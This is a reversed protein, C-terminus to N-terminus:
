KLGHLTAPFLNSLDLKRVIDKCTACYEDPTDLLTKGQWVGISGWMTCGPAPDPVWYGEIPNGAADTTKWTMGEDCHPGNHQQDNTGVDNGYLSGPADPTLHSSRLLPYFKDLGGQAVMGMAHGLEHHLINQKQAVSNREFQCKDSIVVVNTGTMSYGAAGAEMLRLTAKIRFIGVTSGFEFRQAVGALAEDSLDVKIQRYGGFEGVAKGTPHIAAKAVDLVEVLPSGDGGLVGDQHIFTIEASVLWERNLDDLQDLGYWLLGGVELNFTKTADDFILQAKKSLLTERPTNWIITKTVRTALTNVWAVVFYNPVLKDADARPIVTAIKDLWSWQDATATVTKNAQRTVEGEAVTQKGKKPDTTKLDVISEIQDLVRQKQDAEHNREIKPVVTVVGNEDIEKERSVCYAHGSPAAFTFNGKNCLLIRYDTDVWHYIEMRDLANAIDSESIKGSVISGDPKHIDPQHVPKVVCSYYFLRRCVEREKVATKTIGNVEDYAEVRYLNKGAAPLSTLCWQEVVEAGDPKTVPARGTRVVFNRNRGKEADSYGINGGDEIVRIKVSKEGAAASFTVKYTLTGCRWDNPIPEVDASTITTWKSKDASDRELNVWHKDAM